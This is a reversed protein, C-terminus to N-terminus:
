LATASVYGQHLPRVKFELTYGLVFAEWGPRRCLPAKLLIRVKPGVGLISKLETCFCCV